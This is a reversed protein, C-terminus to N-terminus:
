SREQQTQCVAEGVPGAEGARPCAGQAPILRVRHGLGQLARAWHHSAGCAELVVELPALTEFIGLFDRRRVHRRLKVQGQADIGHLTFVSKSTDVAIRTLENM